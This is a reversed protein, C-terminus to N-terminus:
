RVTKQFLGVNSAVEPPKEAERSSKKLSNMKILSSNAVIRGRRM